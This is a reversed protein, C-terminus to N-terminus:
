IKRIFTELMKENKTLSEQCELGFTYSIDPDLLRIVLQGDMQTEAIAKDQIFIGMSEKLLHEVGTTNGQYVIDPHIGEQRLIRLLYQYPFSTQEPVLLPVNELHKLPLKDYKALLHNQPM